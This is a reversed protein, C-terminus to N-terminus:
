YRMFEKRWEMRALNMLLRFERRKETDYPYKDQNVLEQHYYWDDFAREWTMFGRQKYRAVAERIEKKFDPTIKAPNIRDAYKGVVAASAGAAAGAVVSELLGPNPTKRGPNGRRMADLIRAAREGGWYLPRGHQDTRGRNDRLFELYPVADMLPRGPEDKEAASAYQIAEALDRHTYEGDLQAIAAAIRGIQDAQRATSPLRRVAMDVLRRDVDGMRGGARVVYGEIVSYPSDPVPNGSGPNGSREFEEVALNYMERLRDTIEPYRWISEGKGLVGEKRMVDAVQEVFERETVVLSGKRFLGGLFRRVALKLNPNRVTAMTAM